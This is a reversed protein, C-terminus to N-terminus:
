PLHRRAVVTANFRILNETGTVNVTSGVTDFILRLGVQVAEATFLEGLAEDGEIDAHLTDTTAGPGVQIFESIYPAADYPNDLTDTIFVQFQVDAVGTENVFQSSIRLSVSEIDTIDGLGESLNVRQAPVDIPLSAPIGDPVDYAQTVATSDLFSLIDVHLTLSKDGCGSTLAVGAVTALTMLLVLKPKLRRV